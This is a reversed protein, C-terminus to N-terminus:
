WLSPQKGPGVTVEARRGHVSSLKRKQAVNSSEGRMLKAQPTATLPEGSRM